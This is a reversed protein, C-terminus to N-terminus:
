TKRSHKVLQVARRCAEAYDPPPVPLLEFGKGYIKRKTPKWDGLLGAAALADLDAELNARAVSLAAKATGASTKGVRYMAAGEPLTNCMFALRDAEIPRLREANYIGGARAEDWLSALRLALPFLRPNQIGLSLWRTMNLLFFGGHKGGKMREVLWPNVMFGLAADPKASLDYDVTFLDYPHRTGDPKTEVLRLNKVAVFAAGLGQLDRKNQRRQTWDPYMWRALDLLTGKVPRGTMPAAAFMFGLLKPAMNPLKALTATKTATEILYEKVADPVDNADLALTLQEPKDLWDAPVVDLARPRLARVAAEGAMEPENAYTEGDVKLAAPGGLVSAVDIARPLPTWKNGADTFAKPRIIIEVSKEARDLIDAINKARETIWPIALLRLWKCPTNEPAAKELQHWDRRQILARLAEIGISVPTQIGDPLSRGEPVEDKSTLGIYAFGIKMPVPGSIKKDWLLAETKAGEELDVFYPLYQLRKEPATNWAEALAREVKAAHEKDNELVAWGKADLWEALTEINTEAAWALLDEAVAAGHKKRAPEVLDVLVGRLRQTMRDAAQRLYGSLQAIIQEDTAAEIEFPTKEPTEM